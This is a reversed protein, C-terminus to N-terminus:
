AADPEYFEVVSTDLADIMPQLLEEYHRWKQSSSKYMKNRVQGVSATKVRRELKHFELVQEEWQLGCYNILAKSVVEQENVLDEYWFEIMPVGIKRWHKMIRWYNNIENAIHELDFAFGMGGFKAGFNQQFNSLGNDRPDRMVHIIPADPFIRHILGVNVFNHPLKDATYRAGQGEDPLSDIYANAMGALMRPKLADICEPYPKLKPYNQKIFRSIKPIGALEGCPAVLSHSGVITETLTTGSRPMGVIFIPKPRDESVPNAREPGQASTYFRILRNCRQTFEAPNYKIKRRNLANAERLFEAADKYEKRKDCALALAFCINERQQEHSFPNRAILKLKEIIADDPKYNKSNILQVAVMINSDLLELLDAHSDEIKGLTLNIDAKKSLIQRYFRSGKSITNYLTLADAEKGQECLIGARAIKIRDDDGIKEELEDIVANAEDFKELEGLYEAKNYQLLLPKEEHMELMDNTIDLARMWLHRNEYLNMLAMRLNLQSTELEYEKPDAQQPIKRLDKIPKLHTNIVKIAESFQSFQVLANFYALRKELSDADDELDKKLEDLVDESQNLKILLKQKAEKATAHNPDLQLCEEYVELAIDFRQLRALAGGKNNHHSPEEPELEIARDYCRLAQDFDNSILYANGLRNFDVASFQDEGLQQYLRIAASGNGQLVHIFARQSLLQDPQQYVWGESESMYHQVMPSQPDAKIRAVLEILKLDDTKDQEPIGRTTKLVDAYNQQKLQGTLTEIQVAMVDDVWM